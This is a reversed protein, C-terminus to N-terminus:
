KNKVMKIIEKHAPEISEIEHTITSRKIKLWLRCGHVHQWTETQIGYINKRFFIANTWDEVSADLEPYVISGDGGYTFESHDRDGCYPCKIRIM